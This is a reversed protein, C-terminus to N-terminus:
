GNYVYMYMTTKCFHLMCTYDAVMKHVKKGVTMIHGLMGIVILGLDHDVVM